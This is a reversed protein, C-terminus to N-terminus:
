EYYEVEVGAEKFMEMAIAAEEDWDQRGDVIRKIEETKRTLVRKIGAQIILGACTACPHLSTLILTTGELVPRAAQAIVNMEAHVAWKYKLPREHRAEVNDDVGRPFGNYGSGKICFNDDVAVAGVKTSRDKSRGMAALADPIFRKLKEIYRERKSMLSIFREVFRDGAARESPDNEIHRMYDQIDMSM